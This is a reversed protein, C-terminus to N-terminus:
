ILFKIFSTWYSIGVVSTIITFVILIIIFFNLWSDVYYGLCIGIINFLIDGILNILSDGRYSSKGDQDIEIRHYKIIQEPLNEYIEFFTTVMFIIIPIWKSKGFIKKGIFVLIMPWFIHTLSYIDFIHKSNHPSQPYYSNYIYEYWHKHPQDCILLRKINDTM